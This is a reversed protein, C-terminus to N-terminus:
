RHVSGNWRGSGDSVPNGAFIYGNSGNIALAAVDTSTLGTNAFTWSDGNDTSRYLGAGCGATGAFISGARISRWPGSKGCELGNNVPTWSDGNDTSRFIGGGPYTGHFHSWESYIALARVNTQIVHRNVERWSDGVDTSRYVGGAGDCFGSGRFGWCRRGM